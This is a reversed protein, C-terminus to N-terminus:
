EEVIAKNVTVMNVGDSREDYILIGTVLTSGVMSKKFALDDKAGGRVDLPGVLIDDLIVVLLVGVKSFVLSTKIFTQGLDGEGLESGHIGLFHKRM